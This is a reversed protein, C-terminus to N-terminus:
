CEIVKFFNNLVYTTNLTSTSSICVNIEDNFYGTCSSVQNGNNDWKKTTKKNANIDNVITMYDYTVVSQYIKGNYRVETGKVYSKTYDFADIYFAKLENDSSCYCVSLNEEFDNKTYPNEIADKTKYDTTLYGKQILDKIKVEKCFDAQVEDKIKEAYKVAQLKINKMKNNYATERSTNYVSIYSPITIILLLGIIIISALLEILTFGKNM